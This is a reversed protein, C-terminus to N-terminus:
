EKGKEKTTNGEKRAENRVDNREEQLDLTDKYFALSREMDQVVIGTHNFWEVKM